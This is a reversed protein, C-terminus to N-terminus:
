GLAPISELCRVLVPHCSHYSSSLRMEKKSRRKRKSSSSSSRRACSLRTSRGSSGGVQLIHHPSSKLLDCLGGVPVGQQRLHHSVQMLVALERERRREPVGRPLHHHLHAPVAQHQEGREQQLHQLDAPRDLVQVGEGPHLCRQADGGPVPYDPHFGSLDDHQHYKASPLHFQNGEKSSTRSSKDRLGEYVRKCQQNLNSGMRCIPLHGLSQWLRDVLRTVRGVAEPCTLSEVFTHVTRSTLGLGSLEM